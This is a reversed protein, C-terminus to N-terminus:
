IALTYDVLAKSYEGLDTLINGRVYYAMANKDDFKIAKNCKGL